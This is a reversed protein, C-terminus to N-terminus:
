EEDVWFADEESAVDESELEAEIEQDDELPQGFRDVEVFDAAASQQQAYEEFRPSYKAHRIHLFFTMGWEEFGPEAYPHKGKMSGALKYTICEVDKFNASPRGNKVYGFAFYDCKEKM